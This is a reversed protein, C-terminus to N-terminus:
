LEEKPPPDPVTAAPKMRAPPEAELVAEASGSMRVVRDPLVADPPKDAADSEGPVRVVRDPLHSHDREFVRAEADIEADIEALITERTKQLPQVEAEFRTQPDGQLPSGLDDGARGRPKVTTTITLRCVVAAAIFLVSYFVMRKTEGKGRQVVEDPTLLVLELPAKKELAASMKAMADQHGSVSSGNVKVIISEVTLGARGCVDNRLVETVEVGACRDSDTLSIGLHAGTTTDVTLIM